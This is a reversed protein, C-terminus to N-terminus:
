DIAVSRVIARGNVDDVECVVQSRVVAGYGNQALPADMGQVSVDLAGIDNSEQSPPDPVRDVQKHRPKAM